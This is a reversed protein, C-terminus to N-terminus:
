WIGDIDSVNIVSRKEIARSESINLIEMLKVDSRVVEKFSESM